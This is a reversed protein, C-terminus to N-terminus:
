RACLTLYWSNNNEKLTHSNNLIYFCTIHTQFHTYKQYVDEKLFYKLKIAQLKSSAQPLYNNEM